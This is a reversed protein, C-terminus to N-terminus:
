ACLHRCAAAQPRRYVDGRRGAERLRAAYARSEDRLSKGSARGYSRLRFDRSANACTAALCALRVHGGEIAFLAADGGRGCRANLRLERVRRLIFYQQAYRFGPDVAMSRGAKSHERRAGDVFRGDSYQRWHLRWRYRDEDPRDPARRSERSHIQLGRLLRRGQAPFKAKWSVRHDVQAVACGWALAYGSNETDCADLGDFGAWGGGHTHLYLGIPGNRAARAHLHADPARRRPGASGRELGEPWAGSCTSRAAAGARCRAAADWIAHNILRTEEDVEAMRRQRLTEYDVKSTLPPLSGPVPIRVPGAEIAPPSDPTVASPDSSEFTYSSM